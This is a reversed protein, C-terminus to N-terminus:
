TRQNRLQDSVLLLIFRFGAGASQCTTKDSWSLRSAPKISPVGEIVWTPDITAKRELKFCEGYLKPCVHDSYPTNLFM